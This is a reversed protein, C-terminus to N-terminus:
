DIIEKILSPLASPKTEAMQYAAQIHTAVSNAQTETHCQLLGLPEDKNIEAGLKAYSLYGIAHDISDEVKTRGGGISAIAEGIARTDISQIFGSQEAKIEIKYEAIPLVESPNDCVRANGGQGEVCARFKELALGSELKRIVERRAEELSIDVNSLELMHAVLEVSLDKLDKNKNDDKGQLVKIAEMVEMSNGVASGLPQNMDTLLARTKVNFSKATKVLVQALERAEKEEVMFAGNGTKVDLVLADLGVALKKSLISAVILPLSEVTATSDRLAYLRKDAPAIEATQGIMAFGVQELRQHFEKLSLDVRFGPISELKDLTGGTHGLGRGSIMPVCLGCAAALPAVILSTKDGVGGTSHKDVKPKTIYSLDLTEGSQIMEETLILREDETMGNLFIAMLLASAQYDTISGDLLGNIFTHISESSLEKGDRKRRIIEQPNM